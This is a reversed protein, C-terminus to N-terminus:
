FQVGVWASYTDAQEFTPADKGKKWSAGIRFHGPVLIRKPKGDEDTAPEGSADAVLAVRDADLQYVLALERFHYDRNADLFDYRRTYDLTIALRSTIGVELHL